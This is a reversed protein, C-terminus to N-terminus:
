LHPWYDEWVTTEFSGDPLSRLSLFSEILLFLRCLFTILLWSGADIIEVLTILRSDSGPFTRNMLYSTPGHLFKAWEKESYPSLIIFYSPFVAIVVSSIRWLWCEVPSPFHSNWTAVHCGGYILVIVVSLWSGKKDETMIDPKSLLVVHVGKYKVLQLRSYTTDLEQKTYSTAALFLSDLESGDLSYPYDITVKLAGNIILSESDRVVAYGPRLLDRMGSFHMGEYESLALLTDHGEATRIHALRPADPTQPVIEICRMNDILKDGPYSLEIKDERPYDPLEATRPAPEPDKPFTVNFGKSRIAILCALGVDDLLPFPEGIDHPKDWWFFYMVFACVVHMGIHLESLTVPLSGAKRAVCQILMWLGQACVITKGVIDTKGMEKSMKQNINQIRDAKVQMLERFGDASLTTPLNPFLEPRCITVGGMCVLYAGAMGFTDGKSGSKVDNFECWDNRLKRAEYWQVGASAMVIEPVLMATIVYVLKARFIQWWTANPIVDIHVTTWVCLGLTLLCNIIISLSGRGRPEPQWVPQSSRQGSSDPIPVGLVSMM